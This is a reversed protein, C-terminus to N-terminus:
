VPYAEFMCIPTRWGPNRRFRRPGGPAVSSQADERRGEEESHEMRSLKMFAM